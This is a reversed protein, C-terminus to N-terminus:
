APVIRKYLHWTAHGLIPMVVALGIFLPLSGVVLMAAVVLGWVLLTRPNRRFAAVSTEIATLTDVRREVLMPVSVISVALVIVSFAFGVLNGLAILAWGRPTTLVEHLFALPTEPTYRGYVTWYVGQAAVLWSLFVAALLFGIGALTRAARRDLWTFARNWGTELGLARRRSLEYLGVAAFPGILAFGSALPFLMPIVNNGFAFLGLFVGVLPYILSVFIVHTPMALFDDFGARLAAKLDEAGIERVVPEDMARGPFVPQFTTM